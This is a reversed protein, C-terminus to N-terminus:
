ILCGVVLDFQQMVLSHLLCLPLLASDNSFLLQCSAPPVGLHFRHRPPSLLKREKCLRMLLYMKKSNRVHKLVSLNSLSTSFPCIFSRRWLSMEGGTITSSCCGCAARHSCSTQYVSTSRAPHCVAGVGSPPPAHSNETHKRVRAVTQPLFFFPFSRFDRQSFM